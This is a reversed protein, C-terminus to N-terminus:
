FIGISNTILYSGINQRMTRAQNVHVESVICPLATFKIAILKVFNLNRIKTLLKKAFM